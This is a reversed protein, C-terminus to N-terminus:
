KVSKEVKTIVKNTVAGVVGGIVAAAILAGAEAKKPTKKGKAAMMDDVSMKTGKILKKWGATTYDTSHWTIPPSEFGCLKAYKKMLKNQLKTGKANNKSVKKGKAFSEVLELEEAMFVSANGDVFEVTYLNKGSENIVVGLKELRDPRLSAIIKKVRVDDGRHFKPLKGGKAYYNENDPNAKWGDLHTIYRPYDYGQTDVFFFQNTEPNELIYNETIPGDGIVDPNFKPVTTDQLVPLSDLYDHVSFEHDRIKTSSIEKKTLPTGFVTKRDLEWRKESYGKHVGHENLYKGSAYQGADVHKVFERIIDDGLYEWKADGFDQSM